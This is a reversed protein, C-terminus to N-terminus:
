QLEEIEKKNRVRRALRLFPPRIQVITSQPRTPEFQGRGFFQPSFQPQKPTQYQEGRRLRDIYPSGVFKTKPMAQATSIPRYPVVGKGFVSEEQYNPSLKEEPTLRREGQFGRIRLTATRKIKPVKKIQLGRKINKAFGREHAYQKVRGVKEAFEGRNLAGELNPDADVLVQPFEARFGEIITDLQNNDEYSGVFFWRKGDFVYISKHQKETPEEVEDSLRTLMDAQEYDSLDQRLPNYPKCDKYDPVGDFDSDKRPVLGFGKVRIPMMKIPSFKLRRTKWFDEIM